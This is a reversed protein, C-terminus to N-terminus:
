SGKDLPHTSLGKPFRIGNISIEGHPTRGNKTFAGHGLWETEQLDSLYVKSAAPTIEATSQPPPESAPSANPKLAAEEPPKPSIEPPSESVPPASAVQPPTAAVQPPPTPPTPRLPELRALIRTRGQDELTVETGYAIFGDKKLEVKRTGPKVEIEAKVGEKQ